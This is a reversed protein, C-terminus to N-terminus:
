AFLEYFRTLVASIFTASLRKSIIETIQRFHSGHGRRKFSTHVLRQTRHLFEVLRSCTEIDVELTGRTGSFNRFIILYSANVANDFDRANRM